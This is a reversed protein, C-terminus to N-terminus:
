TNYYCNDDEDDGSSDFHEQDTEEEEVRPKKVLLGQKQLREIAELASRKSSSIENKEEVHTTQKAQSTKVMKIGSMNNLNSIQQMNSSLESSIQTCTIISNGKVTKVTNSFNSRSSQSSSAFQVPCESDDFSPIPSEKPKKFCSFPGVTEEGKPRKNSTLATPSIKLPKGFVPRQPSSTSPGPKRIFPMRPSSGRVTLGPRVPVLQNSTATTPRFPVVQNSTSVCGRVPIGQTPSRVFSGVVPRNAPTLARLRPRMTPMAQRVQTGQFKNMQQNPRIGQLRQPRIMSTNQNTTRVEQKVAQNVTRITKTVTTTIEQIVTKTQFTQVTVEKNVTNVQNASASINKQNTSQNTSRAVVQQNMNKTVPTDTQTKSDTEIQPKASMQIGFKSTPKAEHMSDHTESEEDNEEEEDMHKLSKVTINKLNSLCDPKKNAGQFRKGLITTTIQSETDEDSCKPLEHDSDSDPTQVVANKNVTPIPNKIEDDSEHDIETIRVQSNIEPESDYEEIEPTIDKIKSTLNTRYNVPTKPASSKVTIHKGLNRLTNNFSTTKQVPIQVNENETDSCYEEDAEFNESSETVTTRLQNSSKITINKNLNCLEGLKQNAINPAVKCSSNSNPKAQTENKITNHKKMEEEDSDDIDFIEIEEKTEETKKVFNGKQMSMGQKSTNVTIQPQANKTSNLPKATINPLQKLINTCTQKTAADINPPVEKDSKFDVYRKTSKPSINPSQSKLSKMTVTSPLKINLNKNGFINRGNQANNELYPNDNDGNNDSDGEHDGKDTVYEDSKPPQKLSKITVHQSIHKTADLSKCPEQYVDFNSQKITDLQKTTIKQPKPIETSTIYKEIDAEEALNNDDPLDNKPLIHSTSKTQNVSKVILHSLHKLANFPKKDSNNEKSETAKYTTKPIESSNICKEIDSEGSSYHDDPLDNKVFVPLISKSQNVSKVTLHSLHKLANLSKKDANNQKPETTKNDTTETEDEDVDSTQCDDNCEDLGTKLPNLPSNPSTIPKITIHQCVNKLANLSNASSIKAKDSKLTWKHGDSVMCKEEPKQINSFVPSKGKEEMHQDSDDVPNTSTNDDVNEPNLGATNKLSMKNNINNKEKQAINENIQDIGRSAAKINEEELDSPKLSDKKAASAETEVLTESCSFNQAVKKSIKLQSNQLKALVDNPTSSSPNPEQVTTKITNLRVNELNMPKRHMVKMGQFQNSNNLKKKVVIGQKKLKEIEATPTVKAGSVIRPKRPKLQKTVARTPVEEIGQVDGLGEGFVDKNMNLFEDLTITKKKKHKKRKKKREPIGESNSNDNSENM